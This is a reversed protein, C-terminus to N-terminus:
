IFAEEGGLKGAASGLIRFVGCASRHMSRRLPMLFNRLLANQLSQHPALALAHLYFHERVIGMAHRKGHNFTEGM